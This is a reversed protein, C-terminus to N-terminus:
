ILKFGFLKEWESHNIVSYSDKFKVYYLLRGRGLEKMESCHKPLEVKELVNMEKNARIKITTKNQNKVDSEIFYEKGELLPNSILKLIKEFSIGYAKDFFVQVYFHPVNYKKIWNYVVKLDEIKPTISLFTRKSIQNINNKLDKM